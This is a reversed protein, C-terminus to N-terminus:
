NTGGSLPRRFTERVLFVARAEVEAAVAPSVTKTMGGQQIISVAQDGLSRRAAERAAPKHMSVWANALVSIMAQCAVRDGLTAALTSEDATLQTDDSQTM